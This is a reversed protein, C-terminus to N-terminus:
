KGVCFQEFITRIIEDSAVEGIISALAQYAEKLHIVYCDEPWQSTIAEKCARLQGIAMGVKEQHWIRTLVPQNKGFVKGSFVAERMAERLLHLGQGPVAAILVPKQQIGM